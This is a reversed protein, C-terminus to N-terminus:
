KTRSIGYSAGVQDRSVPIEPVNYNDTYASGKETYMDSDLDIYADDFINDIFEIGEPADPYKTKSDYIKGGKFINGEIIASEVPHNYHSDSDGHQFNLSYSESDCYNNKIVHESDIIRICSQGTIYNGSVENGTGHRLVIPKGINILTNNRIKNSSSKISLLEADDVTVEDFYNYEIINHTEYEQSSSLGMRILSSGDPTNGWYNARFINNKSSSSAKVNFQISGGKEAFNNYDILVGNSDIVVEYNKSGDNTTYNVLQSNTLRCGNCDEFRLVYGASDGKYKNGDFNFGELTIYAGSIEFHAEGEFYVEGPTEAYFIAPNEASGAGMIKVDGPSYVGNKIMIKDGASVSYENDFSGSIVETPVFNRTNLRPFNELGPTQEQTPPPFTPSPTPTNTPNTIPTQTPTPNPVSNAPDVSFNISSTTVNFDNDTVEATLTHPGVSINALESDKTTDWEYAANNEQRVFQGDLYLKVNDIGNKNTAGVEVSLPDGVSLVDGDSPTIWSINTSVKSTEITFHINSSTINGNNDTVEAKLTHLGASLNALVEDKISNWEYDATNEQRIFQNDIYLKVNDVGDNDTADVEVYIPDDDTIVSGDTPIVWKINSSNNPQEVFINISSTTINNKNDTVEARLTHTGITLNALKSDKNSDWEYDATNEQRVFHNDLFLKVNAIGNNNYAGVEVSLDDGVFYVEGNSPSIWDIDTDYTQAGAVMSKAIFFCSMIFISANFSRDRYNSIM